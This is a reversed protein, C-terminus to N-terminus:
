IKRSRLFAVISDWTIVPTGNPGRRIKTDSVLRLSEEDILALVHDNDCSWAYTLETGLVYNPKVAEHRGAHRSRPFIIELVDSFSFKALRNPENLLCSLVRVEKRREARKSAINFAWAIHESGGFRRDTEVLDMVADNTFGRAAAYTAVDILPKRMVTRPLAFEGQRTVSM